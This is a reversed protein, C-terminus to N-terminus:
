SVMDVHTYFVLIIRFLIQYLKHFTILWEKINIEANVKLLFMIIMLFPHIFKM